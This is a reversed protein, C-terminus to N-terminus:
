AVEENSDTLAQEVGVAEHIIALWERAPRAYTKFMIEREDQSAARLKRYADELMEAALKAASKDGRALILYFEEEFSEVAKQYIRLQLAEREDVWAENSAHEGIASRSVGYRKGLEDLTYYQHCGGDDIYGLVYQRKIDLWDIVNAM